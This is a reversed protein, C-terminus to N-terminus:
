DELRQLRASLSDQAVEQLDKEESEEEQATTTTTTAESDREVFAMRCVGVEEACPM